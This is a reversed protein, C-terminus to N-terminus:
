TGDNIVEEVNKLAAHLERLANDYEEIANILDVTAQSATLDLRTRKQRWTMTPSQNARSSRRDKRSFGKSAGAYAARRSSLARNPLATVVASQSHGNITQDDRNSLPSSPHRAGSDETKRRDGERVAEAIAGTRTELVSDSRRMHRDISGMPWSRVALEHNRRQYDM